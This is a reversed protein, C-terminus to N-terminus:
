KRGLLEKLDTISGELLNWQSKTLHPELNIFHELRTLATDLKYAIVEDPTDNIKNLIEKFREALGELYEAKKGDGM